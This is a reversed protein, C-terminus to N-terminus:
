KLLAIKRTQVQGGVDLSVLYVGSAVATGAANRGDWTSKYEGAPKAERVLTAVLRGEVDYISL